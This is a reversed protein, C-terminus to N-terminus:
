FIYTETGLWMTVLFPITTSIEIFSEWSLLFKDKYKQILTRLIFEIFFYVHSFILLSYYWWHWQGRCEDEFSDLKRNYELQWIPNSDFQCMKYTRYVYLINISISLTFNTRDM